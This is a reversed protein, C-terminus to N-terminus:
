LVVPYQHRWYQEKEAAVANKPNHATKPTASKTAPYPKHSM